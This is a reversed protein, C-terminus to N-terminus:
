VTVDLNLRKSNTNLLKTNHKKHMIGKSVKLHKKVSLTSLGQFLSELPITLVRLRDTNLPMQVNGKTVDKLTQHARFLDPLQVLLSDYTGEM